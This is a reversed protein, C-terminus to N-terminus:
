LESSYNVDVKHEGSYPLVGDCITVDKCEAAEEGQKVIKVKEIRKVGAVSFIRQYVKSFFIDRGFPWGKGDDGGKLPHFYDNLTSVIKEKVAGLDANDDVVVETSIEVKQYKPRVVYLETTLLRRQNLYECVTRMTGESPVPAKEESDPVVIVTVVGPVKVGPFDPHHLPLAKARKITAAQKALEEFDESTVARCRSKLERSAREKAEDLTEEDRGSHAAMLNNITNANIGSLSSMLTKIAGERVNGRKGGGHRYERAIIGEGRSQSVPLGPPISGNEGNNFRFEGAVRNLIYHRADRKSSFFDEVQTWTRYQGDEELVELTLSGQVVPAQALRFKQNPSGDSDGLVEDRATEAQIAPVTNTRIAYLKPLRESASRVIRARIWYLPEDTEGAKKAPKKWQAPCKLQVHGTRTFGLTDDQLLNM